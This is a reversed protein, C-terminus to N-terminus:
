AMQDRRSQSGRDKARQRRNRPERAPQRAQGFPVQAGDPEGKPLRRQRGIRPDVAFAGAGVCMVRIPWPFERRVLPLDDDPLAAIDDTSMRPM